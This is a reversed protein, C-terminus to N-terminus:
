NMKVGSIEVTSDKYLGGIIESNFRYNWIKRPLGSHNHGIIDLKYTNMPQITNLICSHAAWIERFTYKSM